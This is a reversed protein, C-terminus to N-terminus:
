PRFSKHKWFGRRPKIVRKRRSGSVYIRMGTAPIFSNMMVLIVRRISLIGERSISIKWRVLQCIVPMTKTLVKNFKHYTAIIYSSKVAIKNTIINKFPKKPPIFFQYPKCKLTTSTASRKSPPPSIQSSQSLISPFRTKLQPYTTNPHQPLLPKFNVAPKNLTPIKPTNPCRGRTTKTTNIL